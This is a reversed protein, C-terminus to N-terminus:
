QINVRENSENAPSSYNVEPLLILNKFSDQVHLIRKQLMQQEAKLLALSGAEYRSLEENSSIM